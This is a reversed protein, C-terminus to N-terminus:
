SDPEALVSSEAFKGVAVKARKLPALTGPGGICGFPCAMGEVVLPKPSLEKKEAQALLFLCDKLTDANRYSVHSGDAMSLPGIIAPAVNGAVPYNRGAATAESPKASDQLVEPDIGQAAFLAALEEFTMVFDVYDSVEKRFCETKKAVCPGIFAVMAGPNESKIKKATEVMPTYSDSINKTLGPFNRRAALVWAPCCSTGVFDREDEGKGGDAVERRLLEALKEREELIALDAGYAVEATGAFGLKKVASMIQGPAAKNGFQGAFSPALEAYVREGRQLAILIQVLESKEAIAGFPCSVICLGCSVCKAYDIDAFGEGDSGIAGVGCATACPRERYLIANYPCVQECKGCRICKHQDIFSRPGAPTETMTVANVPCVPVCPHAMCGACCNSVFYSHEACRECGIKIVNVLPETLIKQPIMAPSVDDIIPAHAGFEKLDLGFALRLRERVVARERFVSERYTPTNKEIIDYPINEVYKPPKKEHIMRAVEVLVRRRIETVPSVIGRLKEFIDLEPLRM